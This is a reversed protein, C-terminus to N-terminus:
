IDRLLVTTYFGEANIEEDRKIKGHRHLIRIGV